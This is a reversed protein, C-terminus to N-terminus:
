LRSTGVIKKFNDEEERAVYNWDYQAVAPLAEDKLRRYLLDDDLLRIVEGAFGDINTRSVKIVGKQIINKYAPLDWVVGPLGAALSEMIAIGWGEENSLSVFIKSQKMLAFAADKEPLYGAISINNELGHTNINEELGARYGALLSGIIILRCDPKTKCVREWVPIIEYLGKSPRLAGFVCADFRKEQEPVRRIEDIDAGNKVLIFKAEPAKGSLTDKIEYGSKTDLVLIADAYRPILLYGIRQLFINVMSFVASILSDKRFHIKHHNMAAWRARPFRKKYLLAPILDWPGDSDTYVLDVEPLKKIKSFSRIVILLYCWLQKFLFMRNHTFGSLPTRIEYISEDTFFSRLAEQGGTSTLFYLSNDRAIRRATEITRIFSGGITPDSGSGCTIYLLKM